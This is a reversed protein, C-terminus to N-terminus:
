RKGGGLMGGLVGGLLDELGGGSGGAGGGLISGLMDTLGGLGADAPGSGGPGMGSGGGFSGDVPAAGGSPAAASGAGFMGGLGGGGALQRAILSMVIPALMPLLRAMLDSGGGQGGLTSIVNDTSPGFINQVIKQGDETDVAGVSPVDDTAHDNLAGALSRAGAPDTANAQMGGVLAPLAQQAAAQVQAPDAGLANALQDIPIQTLLSDLDPM